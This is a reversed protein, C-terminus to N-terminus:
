AASPPTIPFRIGMSEVWLEGDMGCKDVAMDVIQGWTSRNLRAECGHRVSLYLAPHEQTGRAVL